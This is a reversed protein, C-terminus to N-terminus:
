GALPAERPTADLERVEDDHGIQGKTFWRRLARPRLTAPISCLRITL